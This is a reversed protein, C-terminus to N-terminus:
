TLFLLLRGIALLVLLAITLTKLPNRVRVPTLPILWLVIVVGVIALVVCYTVFGLLGGTDTIM